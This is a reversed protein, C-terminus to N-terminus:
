KEKRNEADKFKIGYTQELWNVMPLFILKPTNMNPIISEAQEKVYDPLTMGLCFYFSLKLILDGQEKTVSKNVRSTDILTPIWSQAYELKTEVRYTAASALRPIMELADTEQCTLILYLEIIEISSKGMHELNKVFESLTIM